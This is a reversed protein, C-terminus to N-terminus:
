AAPVAAPNDIDAFYSTLKVLVRFIGKTVNTRVFKDSKQKSIRPKNRQLDL